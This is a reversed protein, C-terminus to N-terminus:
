EDTKEKKENVRLTSQAEEGHRGEHLLRGQALLEHQLAILEKQLNAQERMLSVQQRLLGAVDSDDSRRFADPQPMAVREAAPRPASGLALATGSMLMLATVTLRIGKM